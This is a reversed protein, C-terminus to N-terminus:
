AGCVCHMNPIPLKSEKIWRPPILQKLKTEEAQSWGDVLGNLLRLIIYAIAGYSM